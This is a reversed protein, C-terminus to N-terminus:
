RRVRYSLHVAGGRFSRQGTLELGIHVGHPLAQKGGGVLVPVVLLNIEDVLGARIASAALTAGGIGLDRESSRKLAEVATPDFDRELRTRATSTEGLTRSFVVKDAARWIAAFDRIVAPESGVDWTEWVAMTEYMGRGYLYTGVGREEDNVFAHVEEDPAAWEFGGDVDEVYGDLSCIASYSLVGM